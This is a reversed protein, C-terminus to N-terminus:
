GDGQQLPSELVAEWRPLADAVSRQMAEAGYARRVRKSSQLLRAQLDHEPDALQRDLQQVGEVFGLWDGDAVPLATGQQAALAFVEAGGLGTHGILYCGCAAAEALPLGFGERQSFALFAVSQRLLTAVEPQPLGEIPQWQWSAFWPQAELLARVIAVDQGKQKRPMFAIQRRKSAQAPQFLETEIANTLRFVRAPDAALGGALLRRDHESVCLVAKVDPHRYLQLVRDPRWQNEPNLGFSYSGNQNFILKPLGPAYGPLAALFTEPLVVVDREPRLDRRQRFASLAVAPVQSHFWGPHFGAQEQVLVAERGLRILAEALRHVQKVGGIPKTIDPHLPFWYRRQQM